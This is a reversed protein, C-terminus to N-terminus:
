VPVCRVLVVDQPLREIGEVRLEPRFGHAFYPRGESLVVPQFYLLYEDILGAAGLTAALEAGSVEIEGDVDAKLARVAAVPDTSVLRVGAPVETLTTSVVVKPTEQWLEAFEAAVPPRQPDPEGWYRMTEWMRRGYVSLATARMIDNFHQHLDVDPVPLTIDGSLDAIYGDLSQMMGYVLRGM